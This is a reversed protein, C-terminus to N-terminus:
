KALVCKLQLSAQYLGAAANQPNSGEHLTELCSTTISSIDLLKNQFKVVCPDKGENLMRKVKRKVHCM